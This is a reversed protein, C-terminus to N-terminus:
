QAEDAWPNPKDWGKPLFKRRKLEIVSVDKLYNRKVDSDDWAKTAEQFSLGEEARVKKIYETRIEGFKWPEGKPDLQIKRKRPAPKADEADLDEEEGDPEGGAEERAAEVAPVYTSKLAFPKPADGQKRMTELVESKSHVIPTRLALLCLFVIECKM